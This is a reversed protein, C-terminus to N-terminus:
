YNVPETRQDVIKATGEIARALSEITPNNFVTHIDIEAKLVKLIRSTIQTAKLSHGGLFFFNDATGVKEHGLVDQWIRALAAEIETAPEVYPTHSTQMTLDFTKLKKRDTKGTPGVPFEQLFIFKDPSMYAPLKTHLYTRMEDETMERDVIIFGTLVDESLGNVLIDVVADKVSPNMKLTQEIEELEIRYGRYKTQNDARGLFKLKGFSLYRVYDGTRYLLGETNFSNSIFKGTTIEPHNLYGNALGSGGLYLEGVGGPPVPTLQQNLVYTHVNTIARGMTVEEDPALFGATSCVSNETPGYENFLKM